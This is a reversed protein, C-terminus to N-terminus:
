LLDDQSTQFIGVILFLRKTHRFLRFFSFSAVRLIELPCLIELDREIYNSRIDFITLKKNNKSTRFNQKVSSAGLVFSIERLFFAGFYARKRSQVFFSSEILRM